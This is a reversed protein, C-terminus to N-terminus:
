DEECKLIELAARIAELYERKNPEYDHPFIHFAMMSAEILKEENISVMIKDLNLM